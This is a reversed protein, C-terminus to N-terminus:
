TWLNLDEVHDAFSGGVIDFFGDIKFNREVHKKIIEKVIEDRYSVTRDTITCEEVHFEGNKYAVKADFFDSSIEFEFDVSYCHAFAEVDAAYFRVEEPSPTSLTTTM